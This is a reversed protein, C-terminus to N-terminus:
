YRSNLGELGTIVIEIPLMCLIKCQIHMYKLQAISDLLFQNFVSSSIWGQCQIALFCTEKRKRHVEAYQALEVMYRSFVTCLGTCNFGSNICTIRLVLLQKQLYCLQEQFSLRILQLYFCSLDSGPFSVSFRTSFNTLCQYICNSIILNLIQDILYFLCVFLYRSSQCM